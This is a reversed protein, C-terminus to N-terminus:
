DSARYRAAVILWWGAGTQYKNRFLTRYSIGFAWSRKLRRAPDDAPERRHHRDFDRARRSLTMIIVYEYTHFVYVLTGSTIVDFSIDNWSVFSAQSAVTVRM